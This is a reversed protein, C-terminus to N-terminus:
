LLVPCRSSSLVVAHLHGASPRGTDLVASISDAADALFQCALGFWIAARHIGARSRPADERAFDDLSVVDRRVSWIWTAGHFDCSFRFSVLERGLARADVCAGSSPNGPVAPFHWRLAALLDEKNPQCNTRDYDM